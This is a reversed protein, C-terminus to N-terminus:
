EIWNNLRFDELLQSEFEHRTSDTMSSIDLRSNLIKFLTYRRMQNATVNDALKITASVNTLMNIVEDNFIAGISM